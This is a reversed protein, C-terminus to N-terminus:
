EEAYGLLADMDLQSVAEKALKEVNSKTRKIM